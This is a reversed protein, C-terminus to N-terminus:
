VKLDDPQKKLGKCENRPKNCQHLNHNLSAQSHKVTQFAPLYATTRTLMLTYRHRRAGQTCMCTHRHTHACTHAYTGVPTVIHTGANDAHSDTHLHVQTHACPVTHTWLYTQTCMPTHTWTCSYYVPSCQTSHARTTHICLPTCVAWTCAHRHLMRHSRVAASDLTTTLPSLSRELKTWTARNWPHEHYFM